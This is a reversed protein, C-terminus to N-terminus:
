GFSVPTLFVVRPRDREVTAGDGVREGIGVGAIVEGDGQLLRATGHLRKFGEFFRDPAVCRTRLRVVRQPDRQRRASLKLLSQRLKVPRPYQIGPVGPRLVVSAVDQALEPPEGLGLLRIAAGDLKRRSVGLRQIAQPHQLDGPIPGRRRQGVKFTGQLKGRLIVLDAQVHPDGELRKALSGGREGGVALEDPGGRPIRAEGGLAVHGPLEDHPEGASLWKPWQPILFPSTNKQCIRKMSPPRILFRTEAKTPPTTSTAIVASSRMGWFRAACDLPAASAPRTVSSCPPTRGPAVMVARAVEVPNLRLAVVPLSPM